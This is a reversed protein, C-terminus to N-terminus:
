ELWEVGDVCRVTLHETELAAAAECVRAMLARIAIDEGPFWDDALEDATEALDPLGAQRLRTAALQIAWSAETANLELSRGLIGWAAAAHQWRARATM